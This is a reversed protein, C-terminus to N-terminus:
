KKTLAHRIAINYESESGKQATTLLCSNKEPFSMTIIKQNKLKKKDLDVNINPSFVLITKEQYENEFIQQIEWILNNTKSVAILILVSEKMLSTLIERWTEGSVYKRAAGIPPIKDEPNGLAIVPGLHSYNQVILEDLTTSQINPDILRINLPMKWKSLEVQDDIFPRLFLVPKREDIRRLEDVSKLSIRRSLKKVIKSIFFIIQIAILVVFLFILLYLSDSESYFDFIWFKISKALDSIHIIYYFGICELLIGTINLILSFFKSKNFGTTIPLGLFRLFSHYYRKHSDDLFFNSKYKNLEGLGSAISLMIYFLLLTDFIILLYGGSFAALLFLAEFSRFVSYSIVIFFVYIIVTVLSVTFISCLNLKRNIWFSIFIFFFSFFIFAIYYHFSFIPAYFFNYYNYASKGLLGYPALVAFILFLMFKLLTSLIIARTITLGHLYRNYSSVIDNINLADKIKFSYESENLSFLVKSFINDFKAHSWDYKSNSEDELKIADKKRV